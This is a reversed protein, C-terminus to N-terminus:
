ANSALVHFFHYVEEEDYVGVETDCCDCFVPRLVESPQVQQQNKRRGGKQPLVHRVQDERVRTNMVFVARYQNHYVAHKQCDISLTTFCCPCSLIADSVRGERASFAWIEDLDDAEPDYLPDEDFVMDGVDSGEDESCEKPSKKDEVVRQPPRSRKRTEEAGSIESAMAATSLNM